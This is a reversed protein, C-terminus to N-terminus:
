VCNERLSVQVKLLGGFMMFVIDLVDILLKALLSCSEFLSFCILFHKSFDGSIELDFELVDFRLKSVLVCSELL